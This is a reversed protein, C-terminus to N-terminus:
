STQRITQTQTCTVVFGNHHAICLRFQHIPQKLLGLVAADHVSISVDRPSHHLPKRAM